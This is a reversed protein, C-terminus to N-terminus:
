ILKYAMNPDCPLPEFLLPSVAAGDLYPGYSHISRVESLCYIVANPGADFTYAAKVHGYFGNIVHVIRIIMRSIDNLYFIPPYTDLCTAHFQNSDQMTIKGFTEFDKALYAAEIAALRPEVVTSARYQLLPSTLRSTEM